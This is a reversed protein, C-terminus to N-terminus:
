FTPKAVMVIVISTLLATDFRFVTFLRRVRRGVEESEPGYAQAAKDIRGLEPGVFGAGVTFAITWGVLGYIVWFQGWDLDGEVMLAIGFAIAAISAPTYVRTGIWTGVKGLVALTAPDSLREYRVGLTTLTLDGGVWIVSAVVHLTLYVYYAGPAFSLFVIFAALLVLGALLTSLSWPTRPAAVTETAAPPHEAESM